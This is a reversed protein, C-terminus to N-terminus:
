KSLTRKYISCEAMVYNFLLRRTFREETVEMNYHESLRSMVDMPDTSRMEAFKSFYCNFENNREIFAGDHRGIIYAIVSLTITILIYNFKRLM